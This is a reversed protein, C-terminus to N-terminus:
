NIMLFTRLAFYRAKWTLNAYWKLWTPAPKWHKYRVSREGQQLARSCAVTRTLESLASGSSVGHESRERSYWWSVFAAADMVGGGGSYQDGLPPIKQRNARRQRPPWRALDAKSCRRQIISPTEGTQELGELTSYSFSAFRHGRLVWNQKGGSPSRRKVSHSGGGGLGFLVVPLNDTLGWLLVWVKLTLNSQFSDRVKQPFHLHSSDKSLKRDRLQSFAIKAGGGLNFENKQFILDQNGSSFLWPFFFLLDM